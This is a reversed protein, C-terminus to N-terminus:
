EHSVNKSEKCMWSQQFSYKAIVELFHLLHELHRARAYLVADAIFISADPAADTIVFSCGKASYACQRFWINFKAIM